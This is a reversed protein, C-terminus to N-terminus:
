AILSRVDFQEFSELPYVSMVAAVLADIRTTSKGEAKTLKRNGAPDKVVVAGSAGLNLLPHAGHRIRNSLLANEFAEIRPSMDKFGQGVENWEAYLGLSARTAAQKFENIRWRDFEITAPEIGLEAFKRALWEAVWDYSITKGPVPILLGTKVWLEYPARDRAAREAMGEAPAFVFPMLHIASEQDKVSAVAATLDTRTSLDLGVSVSGARFAEILPPANNERWIGPALWLSEQAVRQNLLLNRASAELAPIRSARKLQEELDREDRFLGLAPNAKRWQEKDLLDCDKDAAYVHCVTHPDGSRLADDIWLSLLDADTPAQTSIVFLLPNSHAGQSTTIAEVFPHIPGRVQGM